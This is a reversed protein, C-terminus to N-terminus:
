EGTNAFEGHLKEAAKAYAAHAEQPTSFRGLFKNKGGATIQATFPRTTLRSSHTVGKFGTSNNSQRGRNMGNESISSERLNCFRNDSRINNAHDICGSPWDGTQLMWAVRHAPFFVPKGEHGLIGIVVYGTIKNLSGAPTGAKWRRKDIRHSFLGSDADYSFREAITARYAETEHIKRIRPGKGGSM